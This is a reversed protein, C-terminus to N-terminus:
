RAVEWAPDRGDHADSVPDRPPPTRRVPDPNVLMSRLVVVVLAVLVGVRVVGGVALLWDPAGKGGPLQGWLTLYWLVAEVAGWALVLRWRPVALVALPLLWLVSQPDGARGTLVVAAVALFAVEAVRPVRRARAVGVALAVLCALLLVGQVVVLASSGGDAAAGVDTASGGAARGAGTVRALLDWVSLPGASRTLGFHLAATWGDRDWVLAPVTWVLWTVVTGALLRVPSTRRRLSVAVVAAVVALPWAALAVATGFAVGALVGRGRRRAVLGLVVAAVALMGTGTFAQVVVAPSLAMLLADWPRDGALSVVGAVAALWAASLLVATVAFVLTADSTAPLGVADWVAGVVAGLLEVIWHFVGAAPPYALLGSDGGVMWGAAYPVHERVGPTGHLALIDSYCAATYQRNGSWDLVAGADTLTSRTCPAKQLWALGLVAAAVALIVRSPTWWRARGILAHRGPPGGILDVVGRAAPETESPLVRRDRVSATRAGTATTTGTATSVATAGTSGTAPSAPPPSTM